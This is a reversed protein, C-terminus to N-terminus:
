KDEINDNSPRLRIIIKKSRKVETSAEQLPDHAALISDCRELLRDRAVGMVSALYPILDHFLNKNIFESSLCNMLAWSQLVKSFKWNDKDNKWQTLYQEIYLKNFFLYPNVCDFLFHNTLEISEVEIKVYYALQM